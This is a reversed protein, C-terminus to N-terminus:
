DSAMDPYPCNQAMARACSVSPPRQVSSITRSIRHPLRRKLSMRSADRADRPGHQGFAELGQNERARDGPDVPRATGFVLQGRGALLQRAHDAREGGPGASAPAHARSVLVEVQLRQQHVHLAPDPEGGQRFVRQDNAEFIRPWPGRKM